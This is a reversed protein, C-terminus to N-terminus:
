CIMNLRATRATLLDISDDSLGLSSGQDATALLDKFDCNTVQSRDGRTPSTVQIREGNVQFEVSRVAAQQTVTLVIQAIAQQRSVGVVNDFASSLNVTLATGTLEADILTTGAPISSFAGIDILPRPPAKLLSEILTQASRDSLMVTAPVLSREAVYYLIGEEGGGSQDAITTTTSLQGEVVRPSRDMNIGCGALVGMVAMLCTIM